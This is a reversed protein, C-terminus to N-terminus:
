KKICGYVLKGNMITHTVKHHFEFGLFPTNKGSSLLTEENVCWAQQPDVICVDAPAGGALHGREIGLVDAVNSSIAAVATSWSMNKSEVLSLVLPLLTELASIGPETMAFPALKANSDHPQHDSCITTIVGKAVGERLAARDEKSRAPPIIHLNPSFSQVHEDCLWLQHAAVDASVPLGAQQAQELMEVSRKCSLRCFHARTGVDEILALCQALASTEASIPIGGLGLKVSIKGEHMCGQQMLTHEMPYLMVLLDLGAAYELARKFTRTDAWPAFVNSVAICGSQKLAAMEALTEGRLNDTMAGVVLINEFGLKKAGQKVLQVDSAHVIPPFTDPLCCFTTIGASMAAAVESAMTAKHEYGPERLHTAIDILGPLVLHESADIKLFDDKAEFPSMSIKGEQIFLDRVEDVGNKPDIVRGNQILIKDSM